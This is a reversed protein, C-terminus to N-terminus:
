AHFYVLSAILQMKCTHYHPPGHKCTPQKQYFSTISPMCQVFTTSFAAM